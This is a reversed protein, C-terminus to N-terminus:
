EDNGLPTAVVINRIIIRNYEPVWKEWGIGGGVEKLQRIICM